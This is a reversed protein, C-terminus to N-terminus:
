NSTVYNSWRCLLLTFTGFIALFYMTVLLLVQM